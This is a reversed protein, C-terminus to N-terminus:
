LQIVHIVNQVVAVPSGATAATGRYFYATHEAAQLSFIDAEVDLTAQTRFEALGYDRGIVPPEHKSLREVVLDRIRGAEKQDVELESNRIVFTETMFTVRYRNM